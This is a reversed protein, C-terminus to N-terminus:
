IKSYKHSFNPNLLRFNLNKSSSDQLDVQLLILVNIRPLPNSCDVQVM